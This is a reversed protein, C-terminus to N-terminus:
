LLTKKWHHTIKDCELTNNQQKLAITKLTRVIANLQCGSLNQAYHMLCQGEIGFIAPVFGTPAFIKANEGNILFDKLIM